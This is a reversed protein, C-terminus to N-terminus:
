SAWRRPKLNLGRVSRRYENMRALYTDISRAVSSPAMKLTRGIMDPSMGGEFYRAFARDLAEDNTMLDDTKESM